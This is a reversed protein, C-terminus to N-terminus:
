NKLKYNAVMYGVGFPGEYSYIEPEHNITNLMGLMMIISRLGCEGAEEVFDADLKLIGETDKNQIKKMLTEDFKKAWHSFGAPADETLRHSLDGSAIIAIRKTDNLMDQQLAMGFQYHNEYDLLSYSIPVIRLKKLDLAQTLFYLPVGAGHDLVPSNTLVVRQKSELIEKYHHILRVDGKLNIKTHLDGFEKFNAEFDNSMNLSFADTHMQGHPSIIVITDPKAAYLDQALRKMAATTKKIFRVNDKGIDPILIPPHPSIASFIIM